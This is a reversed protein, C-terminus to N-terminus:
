GKVSGAVLGSQIWRQFLMYLITLPVASMLAAASFQTWNKAFQNTLFQFMGVGLTYNTPSQLVASSIIYESFVGLFSFLFIVTLMPASLPLIIRWFIQLSNAGDMIAAEDLERPLADMYGKLLWINFASGGALVFTYAVLNDLLNLQALATYFASVAMFNPFMQLILLTMLGYKRGWFKFRSFAYASTTTFFVQIVALSGGVLLSNKMWILFNTQTLVTTYNSWTITKPILSISYFSQGNRLSAMAVFYIPFLAFLICVWIIIRSIWLLSRQGPAMGKRNGSKRANAMPSTSVEM